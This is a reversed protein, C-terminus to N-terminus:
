HSIAASADDEFHVHKATFARARKGFIYMRARCLDQILGPGDSQFPLRYSVPRYPTRWCLTHVCDCRFCGRGQSVHDLTGGLLLGFLRPFETDVLYAAYYLLQSSAGVKMVMMTTLASASAGGFSDVVYVVALTLGFVQGFGVLGFSIVPAFWPKLYQASLGWGLYGCGTFLAFVAM